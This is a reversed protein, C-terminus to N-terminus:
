SILYPIELSQHTRVSNDVALCIALGDLIEKRGPSAEQGLIASDVFESLLDGKHCGPYPIDVEEFDAEPDRSDIIVTKTVDHIFTAETGFVKVHHHHPQVCGFNMGLKVRVEGWDLLSSVFDPAHLSTGRSCVKNGHAFVREPKGGLIWLMLDVMHVGGSLTISYNPTQSRWGSSVKHLRGYNYDMEVAYIEGFRGESVWKKLQVFLPYKRLILNSGIKLKPNERLAKTIQQAEKLTLCIPKEVFLHKKMELGRLIQTAHFEDYSAISVLDIDPDGLFTEADPSTPVGQFRASVEAMKRPDSDCLGVLEVEPHNRLAEAHKEGVGLGIVAAKLKPL